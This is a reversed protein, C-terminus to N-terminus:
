KILYVQPQERPVRQQQSRLHPQRAGSLSVGNMMVDYAKRVAHFAPDNGYQNVWNGLCQALKRHVRDDM